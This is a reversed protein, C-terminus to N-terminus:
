CTDTSGYTNLLLQVERLLSKSYSRLLVTSAKMRSAGVRPLQAQSACSNYLGKWCPQSHPLLVCVRVPQSAKARAAASRSSRAEEAGDEGPQAHQEQPLHQEVLPKCCSPEPAGAPGKAEGQFSPRAPFAKLEYSTSSHATRM